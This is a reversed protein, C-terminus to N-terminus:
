LALRGSPAAAELAASALASFLACVFGCTLMRRFCVARRRNIAARRQIQREAGEWRGVSDEAAQIWMKLWGQHGLRRYLSALSVLLAARPLAPLLSRPLPRSATSSGPLSLGVKRESGGGAGDEVSAEDRQQFRRWALVIHDRGIARDTPQKRRSKARESHGAGAHQKARGGQCYRSTAGTGSGARGM